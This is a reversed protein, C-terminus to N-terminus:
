LPPLADWGASDDREPLDDRGLSVDSHPASLPRWRALGLSVIQAMAAWVARHHDFLAGKPKGITGSTYLIFADDEEVARDEIIPAGYGTGFLKPHRSSPGLSVLKVSPAVHSATEALGAEGAGFALMTSGSDHLIYTVEPAALRTNVPVVIAALRSAAHCAIIFEASNSALTAIRDGKHLGCDDLAAMVKAIEVNLERWTWRWDGAVVAERGGVRNANSLATGGITPM